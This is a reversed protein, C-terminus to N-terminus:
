SARWIELASSHITADTGAVTSRYELSIAHSGAPLTIYKFGANEHRQDTGGVGTGLSDSPEERHMPVMLATTGDLMVRIEIDDSSSDFSWIYTWGIRYKGAKECTYNLVSASQFTNATTSKPESQDVYSFQRGFLISDISSFSASLAGDIGSLHASLDKVDGAESISGTRVYHSPVYDIVLRDADLEDEGGRIHRADHDEIDVNNILSASVISNGGMQLSGSMTRSGDLMVFDTLELGEEPYPIGDHAAIIADLITKDETSLSGTFFAEVDDGYINIYEFGSGSLVTEIEPHLKSAVVYQAPFSGTISYSYNSM